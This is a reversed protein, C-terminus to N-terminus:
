ISNQNLSHQSMSFRPKEELALLPHLSEQAQKKTPQKFYVAIPKERKAGEAVSAKKTDEPRKGVDLDIKM